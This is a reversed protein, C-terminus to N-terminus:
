SFSFIKLDRENFSIAYYKEIWNKIVLKTKKDNLNFIYKIEKYFIKSILLRDRGPLLWPYLQRDAERILFINHGGIMWSRVKGQHVPFQFFEVGRLSETIYSEITKDLRNDTALIKM